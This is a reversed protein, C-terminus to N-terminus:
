RKNNLKNFDIKSFINLIGFLVNFILFTIIVKWLSSLNLDNIFYTYLIITIIISCYFDIGLWTKKSIM